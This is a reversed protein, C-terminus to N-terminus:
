RPKAFTFCSKDSTETGADGIGGIAQRWSGDTKVKNKLRKQQQPTKRATPSPPTPTAQRRRRHTRSGQNGHTEQARRTTQEPAPRAKRSRHGHRDETRQRDRLRHTQGRADKTRDHRTDEKQRTDRRADAAKPPENTNQSPTKQKTAEATRKRAAQRKTEQPKRTGTRHTEGAPETREPTDKGNGAPTPSAIQAHARPQWRHRAYGHQPLKHATSQRGASPSKPTSSYTPPIPKARARWGNQRRYSAQIVRRQTARANGIQRKIGIRKRESQSTQRMGPRAGILGGQAATSTV